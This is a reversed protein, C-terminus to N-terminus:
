VVTECLAQFWEIMDLVPGPAATIDHGQLHIMHKTGPSFRDRRIHVSVPIGFGQQKVVQEAEREMEEPDTGLKGPCFRLEYDTVWGDNDLVIVSTEAFDSEAIAEESGQFFYSAIRPGDPLIENIFPEPFLRFDLATTGDNVETVTAEGCSIEEVREVVEGVDLTASGM